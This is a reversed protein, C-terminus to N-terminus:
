RKKFYKERLALFPIEIIKAMFIGFSLSLVVYLTFEIPRPIIIDNYFLINELIYIKIFVHWLYISYSYFGIRVIANFAWKGIYKQITQASENGLVMYLLACAAAAYVMTFGISTMYMTKESVALVVILMIFLYIGLYKKHKQYFVRLTHLQFHYLYAIFVGFLLSDIRLHTAFMHTDFDFPQHALTTYCRAALCLTQVGIFAALLWTKHHMKHTKIAIFVTFCLLFYFHEEVALSWNPSWIHLWYNQLFVAESVFSLPNISWSGHNVTIKLIYQYGLTVLLLIYFAPYIKFGRRILFLGIKINGFKKYEIFLLGSVLFGSLVFFLDVGCWGFEFFNFITFHRMLVFLIAVGRLFDIEKLRM